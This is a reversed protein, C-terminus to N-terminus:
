QNKQEAQEKIQKNIRPLYEHAPELVFKDGLTLKPAVENPVEMFAKGTVKDVVMMSNSWDAPM